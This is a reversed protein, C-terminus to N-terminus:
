LHNAYRMHGYFSPTFAFTHTRDHPPRRGIPFSWRRDRRDSGDSNRDMQAKVDVVQRRGWAAGVLDRLFTVCLISSLFIFPSVVENRNGSEEMWGDYRADQEEECASTTWFWRRSWTTSRPQLSRRANESSRKFFRALPIHDCPDRSGRRVQTDLIVCVSRLAFPLFPEGAPVVAHRTRSLIYKRSLAILIRWV